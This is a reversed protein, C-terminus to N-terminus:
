RLKRLENIFDECQDALEDAHPHSMVGERGADELLRRVQKVRDELSHANKQVQVEDELRQVEQQLSRSLPHSSDDIWDNTRHQFAVVQKYLQDM